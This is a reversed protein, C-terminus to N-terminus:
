MNNVMIRSLKVGYKSAVQGYTMNNRRSHIALKRLLDSSKSANILELKDEPIDAISEAKGDTMINYYDIVMRERNEMQKIKRNLIHKQTILILRQRAKALMAVAAV